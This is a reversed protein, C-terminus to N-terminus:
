GFQIMEGPIPIFIFVINSNGGGWGMIEVQDFKSKEKFWLAVGRWGM